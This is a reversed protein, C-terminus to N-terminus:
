KKRKRKEKEKKLKQNAQEKEEKRKELSPNAQCDVSFLSVAVEWFEGKAEREEKQGQNLIQLVKSPEQQPLNTFLFKQPEQKFKLINFSQVM